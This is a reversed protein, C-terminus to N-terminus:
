HMFYFRKRLLLRKEPNSVELKVTAEQAMRGMTSVTGYEHDIKQLMTLCM